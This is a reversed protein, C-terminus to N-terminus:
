CRGRHDRGSAHRRVLDQSRDRLAPVERRGDRRRADPQVVIAVARERRLNRRTDLSAPGGEVMQDAFQGRARDVPEIRLDEVDETEAGILEEVQRTHRCGRNDVVGDLERPLGALPTGGAEDVGDEAAQGPPTVRKRKRGTRVIRQVPVGRQLVERHCQRMRSPERRAPQIPEAEVRSFGPHPEVVRRARERKAGVPQPDRAIIERRAQACIINSDM